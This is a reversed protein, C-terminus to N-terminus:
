TSQLSQIAELHTHMHTDQLPSTFRDRVWYSSPYLRAPGHGSVSFPHILNSKIHLRNFWRSNEESATPHCKLSVGGCDTKLRFTNFNLFRSNFTCGNLIFCRQKCATLFYSSTSLINLLPWILFTVHFFFFFFFKQVQVRSPFLCTFFVLPPPPCLQM